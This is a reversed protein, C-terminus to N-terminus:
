IRMLLLLISTQYLARLNLLWTAFISNFLDNIQFIEPVNDGVPSLNLPLVSGLNDVVLPVLAAHSEFDSLDLHNPDYSVSLIASYKMFRLFKLRPNSFHNFYSLVRRTVSGTIVDLSGKHLCPISNFASVLNFALFSNKTFHQNFVFNNYNRYFRYGRAWDKLINTTALWNHLHRRRSWRRRILTTAPTYLKRLYMSTNMTTSFAVRRTIKFEPSSLGNIINIYSWRRVM